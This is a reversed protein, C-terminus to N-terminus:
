HSRHTEPPKGARVNIHTSVREIIVLIHVVECFFIHLTLAAREVFWYRTSVCSRLELLFYDNKLAHIM